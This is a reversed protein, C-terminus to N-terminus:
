KPSLRMVRRRPYSADEEIRDILIPKDSPDLYMVAGGSQSEATSKIVDIDYRALFGAQAVAASDTVVTPQFGQDLRVWLSRSVRERDVVPRGAEDYEGTETERVYDIKALRDFAPVARAVLAKQFM